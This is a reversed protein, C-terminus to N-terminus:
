AGRSEAAIVAVADGAYRVVDVALPMHDPAHTDETPIWACPLSGQWEEALDAGSWAAIVGAHALAPAVDVRTIRAHPYLSRVVHLYVTGPVHMNLDSSCVDSSWDCDFRTHRRRSSFFFFLFVCSVYQM